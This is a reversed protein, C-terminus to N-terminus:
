TFQATVVFQLKGSSLVTLLLIHLRRLNQISLCWRLESQTARLYHLLRLSRTSSAVTCTFFVLEAIQEVEVLPGATQRRVTFNVVPLRSKALILADIFAQLM